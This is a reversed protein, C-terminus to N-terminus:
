LLILAPLVGTFLVYRWGYRGVLGYIQGGILRASRRRRDDHRRAVKARQTEALAEAVLPIGVMLEAGTGVGTFFRYIGFM